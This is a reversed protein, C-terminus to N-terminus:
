PSGWRWRMEKSRRNLDTLPRSKVHGLWGCPGHRGLHQKQVHVNREGTVLIDNTLNLKCYTAFVSKHKVAKLEWNNMNRSNHLSCAMQCNYVKEKFCTVSIETAVLTAYLALVPNRSLLPDWRYSLGWVYATKDRFQMQWSRRAKEPTINGDKSLFEFINAMNM